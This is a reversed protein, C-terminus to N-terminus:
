PWNQINYSEVLADRRRRQVDPIDGGRLKVVGHYTAGKRSWVVLNAATTTAVIAAEVGTLYTKFNTMFTTIATGSFRHTATALNGATMPWFLRGRGSPGPFTSALSVVLATQLPLLPTGTGPLPSNRPKEMQGVLSGNGERQELRVGTIACAASLTALVPAPVSVSNIATAIADLQDFSLEPETPTSWVPNISWVEGNPLSGKISVKLLEPM